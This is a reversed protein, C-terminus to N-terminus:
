HGMTTPRGGPHWSPPQSDALIRVARSVIAAAAALHGADLRSVEDSPQHYDRHMNYSSLTHAPIGRIAFV